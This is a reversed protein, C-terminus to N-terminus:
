EIQLSDPDGQFEENDFALSVSTFSPTFIGKTTMGQATDM